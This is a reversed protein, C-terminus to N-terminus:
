QSIKDSIRYKKKKDPTTQNLKEIFHQGVYYYQDAKFPSLKLAALNFKITRIAPLGPQYESVVEGQEDLYGMKQLFQISKAQPDVSNDVAAKRTAVLSEIKNVMEQTM